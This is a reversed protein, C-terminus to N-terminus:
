YPQLSLDLEYIKVEIRDEVESVALELKDDREGIIIIGRVGENKKALNKRVWAMYRLLQGVVCDNSKGKKLEFVVYNGNEDKALLDIYGANEAYYERGEAENADFYKTLKEGFDITDWNDWIHDRLIKELIKMAQGNSSETATAVDPDKEVIINYDQESIKKAAGPIPTWEINQIDERRKPKSFVRVNKLDIKLIDPDDFLEKEKESVNPQAGSTLEATGVFVQNNTGVLYFVVRDGPEIAKSCAAHPRFGWVNNKVVLHQFWEYATMGGADAVQFVYYNM